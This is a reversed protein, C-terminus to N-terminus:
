INIDVGSLRNILSRDLWISKPHSIHLYGNPGPPFRTRIWAPDAMGAAHPVADGRKGAGAGGSMRAARWTKSSPTVCFIVPSARLAL